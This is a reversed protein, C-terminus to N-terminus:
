RAGQFQGAANSAKKLLPRRSHGNGAAPSPDRSKKASNAPEPGFEDPMMARTLKGPHPRRLGITNKKRPRVPRSDQDSLFRLATDPPAGARLRCAEFWSPIAARPFEAAVSLLRPRAHASCTGDPRNRPALRKEPNVSRPNSLLEAGQRLPRRAASEAWGANGEQCWM